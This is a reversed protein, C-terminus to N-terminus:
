DADDLGKQVDVGYEEARQIHGPLKGAIENCMRNWDAMSPMREGAEVRRTWEESLAQERKDRETQYCHDNSDINNTRGLVGLRGEPRPARPVARRRRRRRKRVVADAM